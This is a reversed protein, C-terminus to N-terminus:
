PYHTISGSIPWPLTSLPHCPCFCIILYISGQNHLSAKSVGRRRSPSKTCNQSLCDRAIHHASKKSKLILPVGTASFFAWIRMQEDTSCSNLSALRRPLWPYPGPSPELMLSWLSIVISMNASISFGLTFYHGFYLPTKNNFHVLWPSVLALNFESTSWLHVHCFLVWGFISSSRQLWLKVVSTHIKSM